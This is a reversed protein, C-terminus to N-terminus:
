REQAEMRRVVAVMITNLEKVQAILEELRDDVGQVEEHLEARSIPSM